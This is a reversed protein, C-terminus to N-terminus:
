PGLRALLGFRGCPRAARDSFFPGGDGTTAGAGHIGGDPVGADLLVRRNAAVLDVTWRVTGGARGTGGPGGSGGPEGTGGAGGPEGTGAGGPHRAVLGHGDVADGFARRFAAVVEPGVEYAHPAVAPGLGAVMSAPDAGLAAMARVTAAAARAVTGRWGAHVTALVGASPDVLVIPVCDAVLTVLVPGAAATVLADAGPVADGLERAGRGRDAPGVVAVASGHVQEAVVLEDLDAGAAAAARRRNELVDGARDGVHLGLNLTAFPGTSVGGHRTTVLATVGLADLAPWSLVPLGGAERRHGGGPDAGGNM